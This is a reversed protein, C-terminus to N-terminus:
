INFRAAKPTVNKPLFENELAAKCAEVFGESGFYAKGDSNLEVPQEPLNEISYMAAMKDSVSKSEFAVGIVPIEPRKFHCLWSKVIGPLAAAKGAGAIIINTDSDIEMLHQRLLEPNRHCSVVNLSFNVGSAKLFDCGAITQHLDSDSGVLITVNPIPTKVSIGMRTRQYTELKMGTLRWFIYRYLRTTKTVVLPPVQANDVHKLHEPNTPDLRDDIGVSKGWERVFQKDFSPPLKGAAQAKQWAVKDWFRSSDPTCKEDVLTGGSWEFKTDALIIGRKEAFASMAMAAQLSLREMGIGYREAVSDATIHEDHGVAAKTTPAFISYPLRSGDRLGKPLRHGCVTGDERYSKWGSGTLYLRVISEVEPQNLLTVITAVKQLEPNGAHEL